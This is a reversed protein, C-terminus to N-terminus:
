LRKIFRVKPDILRCRTSALSRAKAGDQPALRSGPQSLNSRRQRSASRRTGNASGPLRQITKLNEDVYTGYGNAKLTKLSSITIANQLEALPKGAKKGTEILGTLEEIYNRMEIM